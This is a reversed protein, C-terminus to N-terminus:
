ANRLSKRDVERHFDRIAIVNGHGLRTKKRMTENKQQYIEAAGVGTNLSEVISEGALHGSQIGMWIGDGARGWIGAAEGVQLVNGRGLIPNIWLDNAKRLLQNKVEGVFNFRERLFQLYREYTPELEEMSSSTVGLLWDGDKPALFNIFSGKYMLVYFFSPNVSVTGKLTVQKVYITKANEVEEKNLKRSILTEQGEAGVLYRCFVKKVANEHRYTVCFIQRMEEYDVFEALYCYEAGSNELLWQDFRARHFNRHVNKSSIILKNEHYCKPGELLKPSAYVSEPLNPYIQDIVRLGEGMVMGACVKDRPFLEKELVLVQLGSRKVALACTSGAPGAGVVVVDYFPNNEM